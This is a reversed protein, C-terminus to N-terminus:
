PIPKLLLGKLSSSNKNGEVLSVSITHKGPTKFELIGMTYFVYKETAAQQNQIMVGEDTETKWM